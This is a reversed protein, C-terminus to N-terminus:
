ENEGKALSAQRDPALGLAILAKSDIKGDMPLNVSEEFRKWAEITKEDWKGTPAGDLFGRDILAQQIERYREPTPQLQKPPAAKRSTKKKPASKKAPAAKNTQAEIAVPSLLLGVAVVM